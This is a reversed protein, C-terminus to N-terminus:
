IKSGKEQFNCGKTIKKFEIFDINWDKILLQFSWKAASKTQGNRFVGATGDIESGDVTDLDLINTAMNANISKKDLLEVNLSITCTHIANTALILVKEM